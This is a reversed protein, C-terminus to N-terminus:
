LINLKINEICIYFLKDCLWSEFLLSIRSFFSLILLKFNILAIDKFFILIYIFSPSNANIAASGMIEIKINITAKFHGAVLAIGIAKRIVRMKAINIQCVGQLKIKAEESFPRTMVNSINSITNPARASRKVSRSLPASATILSPNVFILGSRLICTIIIAQNKPPKISPAAPKPVGAAKAAGSRKDSPKGASAATMSESM